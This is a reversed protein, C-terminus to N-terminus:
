WTFLPLMGHQKRFRWFRSLKGHRSPTPKINHRKLFEVIQPYVIEPEHTEVELEFDHTDSSYSVKDLEIVFGCYNFKTRCIKISGIVYLYPHGDAMHAIKKWPETHHRDPLLLTYHLFFDDKTLPATLYQEVEECTHLGHDTKHKSGKFTMKPKCFGGKGDEILSMRYTYGHSHLDGHPDDYYINWYVEESSELQEKNARVEEYQEQTLAFKFEREYGM